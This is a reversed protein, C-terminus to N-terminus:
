SLDTQIQLKRDYFVQVRGPFIVGAHISFAGAMFFVSVSRLNRTSLFFHSVIRLDDPMGYM